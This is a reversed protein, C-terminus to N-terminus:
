IASTVSMQSGAKSPSMSDPQHAVSWFQDLELSLLVEKLTGNVNKFDSIFIWGQFLLM